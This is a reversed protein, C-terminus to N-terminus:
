TLAPVYAAVRASRQEDEADGFGALAVPRMDGTSCASAPAAVQNTVSPATQVLARAM